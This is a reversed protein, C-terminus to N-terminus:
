KKENERLYLTLLNCKFQVFSMLSLKWNKQQKGLFKNKRYQCFYIKVRWWSEREDKEHLIIKKKFLILEFLMEHNESVRLFPIFPLFDNFKMTSMCFNFTFIENWTKKEREVIFTFIEHSKVHVSLLEKEGKMLHLWYCFLLIFGVGVDLISTLYQM